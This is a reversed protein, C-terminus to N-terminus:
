GGSHLEGQLSSGKGGEDGRGSEGRGNDLLTISIRVANGSTEDPLDKLAPQPPSPSKLKTSSHERIGIVEREENEEEQIM